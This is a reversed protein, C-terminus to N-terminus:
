PTGSGARGAAHGPCNAATRYDTVAVEPFRAREDRPLPGEGGMFAWQFYTVVHADIVELKRRPSIPNLLRRRLSTALVADTFEMHDTSGLRVNIGGHLQFQRLMNQGGHLDFEADNRVAPDRSTLAERTPM